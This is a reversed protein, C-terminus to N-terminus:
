AEAVKGRPFTGKTGKPYSTPHAGCCTQITNLSLFRVEEPFRIGITWGMDQKETFQSAVELVTWVFLLQQV